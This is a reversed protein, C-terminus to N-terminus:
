GAPAGLGGPDGGHARATTSTVEGGLGTAHRRVFGRTPRMQESWGPGSADGDTSYSTDFRLGAVTMFVHESNAYIDVWGGLGARGWTEFSTSILPRRLLGAAHLVYSVSGSCDYGRSNFSAHGGGWVYPKHQIRSGAAIMKRVSSPADPPPVARGLLITARPLAASAAPPVGSTCLLMLTLLALITKTTRKMTTVGPARPGPPLAAVNRAGPGKDRGKPSLGTGTDGWPGVPRHTRPWGAM